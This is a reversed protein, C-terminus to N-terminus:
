DYLDHYAQENNYNLDTLKHSTRTQCHKNFQKCVCAGNNKVDLNMRLLSKKDQEEKKLQPKNM